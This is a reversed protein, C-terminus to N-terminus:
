KYLFFVFSPAWTVRDALVHATLHMVPAALRSQAAYKLHTETVYLLTRNCPLVPPLNNNTTTM